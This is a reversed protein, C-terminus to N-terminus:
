SNEVVGEDLGSASNLLTVIVVLVAALNLRGRGMSGNAGGGYTGGGAGREEDRGGDSSSESGSSSRLLPM